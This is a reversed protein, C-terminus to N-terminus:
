QEMIEIDIWDLRRCIICRYSWTSIRWIVGASQCKMLTFSKAYKLHGTLLIEPMEDSYDLQYDFRYHQHYNSSCCILNSATEHTLHLLLWYGLSTVPRDFSILSDTTSAHTHYHTISILVALIEEYISQFTCCNTYLTYQWIIIIVNYKWIILNIDCNKSNSPDNQCPSFHWFNTM